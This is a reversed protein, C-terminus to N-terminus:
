SPRLAAGFKRVHELLHQTAVAAAWSLLLAVASVILAKAIAPLTLSLLAYQLWVVFLYHFLYIAYANKSLEDAVPSRRAAFRLFVGAFAFCATAALLAFMLNVVVGLQPFPGIGLPVDDLTLATLLMWAIFAAAASLTWMAWRRALVGDSQLLGTELGGAGVAVGAFFFVAYHALL